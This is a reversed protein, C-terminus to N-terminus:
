RLIGAATPAPIEGLFVTSSNTSPRESSILVTLKITVHFFSFVMYM